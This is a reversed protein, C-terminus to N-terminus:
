SLFGSFLDIIDALFGWIKGSALYLILICIVVIQKYKRKLYLFLMDKKTNIDVGELYAKYAEATVLNPKKKDDSTLIRNLLPITLYGIDIIMSSILGLFLLICLVALATGLGGSFPKLYSYASYFDSRADGALQRVIASVASDTEAVYNYLKTKDIAVLSSDSISRLTFDMVKQKENVNLDEYTFTDVSVIVGGTSTMSFELYNFGSRIEHCYTNVSDVLESVGNVSTLQVSPKLSTAQVSLFPIMVSVWVGALILSLRKFTKKM